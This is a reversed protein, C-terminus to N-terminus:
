CTIEGVCLVLVGGCGAGTTALWAGDRGTALGTTWTESVTGVGSGTGDDAAGITTACFVADARGFGAGAGLGAGLAAAGLPLALAALPMGAHPLGFASPRDRTTSISVVPPGANPVSCKLCYSKRRSLSTTSVKSSPGHGSLVGITILASVSLQMLAVNKSIPSCAVQAGSSELASDAAPM